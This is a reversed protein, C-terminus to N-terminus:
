KEYTLLWECTRWFLRNKSWGEGEYVLTREQNSGGTLVFMKKKIKKELM